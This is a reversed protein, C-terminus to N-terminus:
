GATVLTQVLKGVVLAVGLFIFYAFAARVRAPDFRRTLGAGVQTGVVSGLLLLLALVPDVNGKLAHSFAGYTSVFVMQFLSTGVAVVTPVGIAYIMAPMMIFGGGVGLFGSVLGSVFSVAVIGWVSISAIGSAPLAICPRLRLARLRDAIATHPEDAGDRADRTARSEQLVRAAIWTLVITYAAGMVLAEVPVPAAGIRVTGCADLGDLAQAGLEAGLAAGVLCLLGLRYDIGGLYSHRVSASASLGAMQSLGSGVAVPYSIGFLAHLLPTLLFGGGVGFFGGIAGILLGILPIVYTPIDVHAIPLHVL